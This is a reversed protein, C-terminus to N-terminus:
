DEDFLSYEGSPPPPMEGNGVVVVLFGMGPVFIFSRGYIFTFVPQNIAKHTQKQM